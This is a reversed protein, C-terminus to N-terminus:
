KGPAAPTTLAAQEAAIKALKEQNDKVKTAMAIGEIEADLMSLVGGLHAQITTGRAGKVEGNLQKMRDVIQAMLTAVPPLPKPAPKNLKQNLEEQTM